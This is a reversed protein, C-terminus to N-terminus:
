IPSEPIPAFLGPYSSIDYPNFSCPSGIASADCIGSADTLSDDQPATLCFGSVPIGDCLGAYPMERLDWGESAPVIPWEQQFCHKANRYQPHTLNNGYFADFLNCGIVAACPTPNAADTLYLPSLKFSSAGNALTMTLKYIGFRVKCADTTGTVAIGSGAMRNFVAHANELYVVSYSFQPNDSFYKAPSMPELEGPEAISNPQSNARRFSSANANIGAITALAWTRNVVRGTSICEVDNGCGSALMSFYEIWWSTGTYASDFVQGIPYDRSKAYIFPGSSEPIDVACSFEQTVAENPPARSRVRYYVTEAGSPPNVAVAHGTVFDNQGASYPYDLLAPRSQGDYFVYSDSNATTNWKILRSAPNEPNSVCEVNTITIAAGELTQCTHGFSSTCINGACSTVSYQIASNPPQNTVLVSHKIVQAGSGFDSNGAEVSSNSQIDTDWTVNFSSTTQDKCLVNSIIPPSSPIPDLVVTVITTAGSTVEATEMKDQYGSLIFTLIYTGPSLNPITEPTNGKYGDSTGDPKQLWIGAGSPISRAEISGPNTVTSTQASIVNSLENELGADDTAKIGFYYTTGPSLGSVTMSQSAGAPLPAPEGAAQISISWNPESIPNPSYRLDYFAASGAMGDDGPATWSLDISTPNSLGPPAFLNTIRAPPTTDAMAATASAINSLPSINPEEDSVLLGFYFTSGTTLGTITLTETEGSEKPPPENLVQTASVWNSETILSLSYRIDYGSARGTQGDDGVATWALAISTAGVTTAALDDVAAPAMDDKPCSTFCGECPKSNSLLLDDTCDPNCGGPYKQNYCYVDTPSGNPTLTAQVTATAGSPVAVTRTEQAYGPKSIKVTQLGAPVSAITCSTMCKFTNGLYAESYDPTSIVRISGPPLPSPSPLPVMSATVIKEEGNGVSITTSYDEYGQKFFFVDYTGPGVDVTCPTTCSKVGVEMLAHIEPSTRGLIEASDAFSAKGEGISLFSGETSWAFGAASGLWDGSTLLTIDATGRQVKLDDNSPNYIQRNNIIFGARLTSYTEDDYYYYSAPPVSYKDSFPSKYSIYSAEIANPFKTGFPLSTENHIIVTINNSAPQTTLKISVNFVGGNINNGHPRYYEPCGPNTPKYRIAPGGSSSSTDFCSTLNQTGRSDRVNIVELGGYGAIVPIADAPFLPDVKMVLMNCNAKLGSSTLTLNLKPCTFIDYAAPDIGGPDSSKQLKITRLTVNGPLLVNAALQLIHDNYDAAEVKITQNRSTPLVIDCPNATCSTSNELSGQSNYASITFAALAQSTENDLVTLRLTARPIALTIDFSSSAAVDIEREGVYGEDNFAKLIFKQKRIGPIVISGSSNTALDYPPVPIGSLEHFSLGAAIPVSNGNFTRVFITRYNNPDAHQLYIKQNEGASFKPTAGLDFGAAVATAYYKGEDLRFTASSVPSQTQYILSYEEDVIAITAPLPEGTLNDYVSITSNQKVASTSGIRELTFAVVTVSELTVLRSEEEYGEASAKIRLRVSPSYDTVLLSGGAARFARPNTCSSSAPCIRIEANLPSGASNSVTIRLRANEGTTGTNASSTARLVITFLPGLAAELTESHLDYGAKSVAIDLSESSALIEANGRLDTIASGYLAGAAYEIKAGAISTGSEDIVKLAYKVEDPVVDATLELKVIKGLEAKITKKADAYGAASAKLSVDDGKRIGPILAYGDKNTEFTMSNGKWTAIVQSGEVPSNDALVQVKLEFASPSVAQFAYFAAGILLLLFLLLLGVFVPFSPRGNEEIPTVFKEYVPLNLNNQLYDMLNYYGEELSAYLDDFAM